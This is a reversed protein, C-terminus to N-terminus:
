CRLFLNENICQASYTALVCFCKRFLWLGNDLIYKSFCWISAVVDLNLLRYSLGLLLYMSFWIACINPMSFFILVALTILIQKHWDVPGIIPMRSAVRKDQCLLVGIMIGKTALFERVHTYVPYRQCMYMYANTVRPYVGFEFYEVAGEGWTSFISTHMFIAGPISVSLLFCRLFFSAVIKHGTIIISTSDLNINMHLLGAGAGLGAGVRGELVCLFCIRQYDRIYYASM